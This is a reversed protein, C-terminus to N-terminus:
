SSAQWIFPKQPSLDSHPYEPIAPELAEGEKSGFVHFHWSVNKHEIYGHITCATVEKAM